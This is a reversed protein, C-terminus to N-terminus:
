GGPWEDQVLFWHWALGKSADKLLAILGPLPSAEGPFVEEISVVLRAFGAQGRWDWHWADSHNACAPCVLASNEPWSWHAMHTSWDPLTKHCAPCRPPRTNRGHLFRPQRPAPHLRLHCGGTSTTGATDPLGDLKVACGTFAVFDFFREGPAFATAEPETGTFPLSAGLFAAQSLAARLSEAPPAQLPDDPTLLLRGTHLSM